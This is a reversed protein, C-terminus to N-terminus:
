PINDMSQTVIAFKTIKQLENPAELITTIRKRYKSAEKLTTYYRQLTIYREPQSYWPEFVVKGKQNEKKHFIDNQKHLTRLTNSESLGYSQNSIIGNAGYGVIM